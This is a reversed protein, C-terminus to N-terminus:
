APSSAAGAPPLWAQAPGPEGAPPLAPVAGDPDGEPRAPLGAPVVLTGAPVGPTGPPPGAPAPAGAGSAAGASRGGATRVAVIGAGPGALLRETEDQPAAAFLSVRLRQREAAPMASLRAALAAVEGAPVPVRPTGPVALSVPGTVEEAEGPLFAAFVNRASGAVHLLRMVEAMSGYRDCAATM